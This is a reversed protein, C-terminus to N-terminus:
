HKSPCLPYQANVFRIHHLFSGEFSGNHLMVAVKSQLLHPLRNKEGRSFDAASFKPASKQAASKEISFFTDTSKEACFIRGVLLLFRGNAKQLTSFGAV